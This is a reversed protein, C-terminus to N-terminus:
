ALARGRRLHAPERDMELDAADAARDHQRQMAVKLEAMIRPDREAAAWLREDARAQAVRQSWADLAAVIRASLRRATGAFLALAAFAVVWLVIWATFLHEDQWRDILQDAVVLLAAAVAALLMATLSRGTNFERGLQRVSAIANEARVVGPHQAPHRTQVFSTM